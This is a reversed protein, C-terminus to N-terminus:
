IGHVSKFAAGIHDIMDSALLSESGTEKVALDGALGHLFVGAIAADESRLGQALLGAIMGTLIDGSGATAMGPNGTSNFVVGGDPMAIATHAGKLVVVVQYKKAVHQLKDLRQYHNGSPGFLRAFEKMHPTLISHAPLKDMLEPHRSMANLGDADIILPVNAKKFLGSIGKDIGEYEGLGCGIGIASYPDLSHIGTFNFDHRDSSVMAEPVAIQMISDAMRPVHVTLLGIGSRLAARSSLIAAGMKGYSGVVLLGHGFNGKHAFKSRPPLLPAIDEPHVFQKDTRISDLTDADLGIDLVIWEGLYDQNEPVFFALKPAQFTLTFDACVAAGEVPQQAYVGSPMDIAIVINPLASISEALNEWHGSLPRNLGYGFMADIVLAGEEVQGAEFRELPIASIGLDDLRKYNASYDSATQVRHDAYIQIQRDALKLLRGIALGDGGNNGPGCIIVYAEANGFHDLIWDVCTSAAREMLDLSSIPEHEITYQDLFQLQEVSLIKV